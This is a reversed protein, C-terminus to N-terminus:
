EDDEAEDTDLDYFLNQEQEANRLSNPTSILQRKSTPDNKLLYMNQDLVRQSTYQANKEQYLLIEGYREINRTWQNLLNIVNKVTSESEDREISEVRKQITDKIKDLIKIQDPDKQNFNNADSNESLSYNGDMAMRLMGVIIGFLGIKRARLTFPTLAVTEVNKYYNSHYDKFYEYYSLDRPKVYSYLTVIL